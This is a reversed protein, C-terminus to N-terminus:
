IWLGKIQRTQNGNVEIRETNGKRSKVISWHQSSRKCKVRSRLLLSRMLICFWSSKLFVWEPNTELTPRSCLWTHRPKISVSLEIGANIFRKSKIGMWIQNQCFHNNKNWCLWSTIKLWYFTNVGIKFHEEIKIM